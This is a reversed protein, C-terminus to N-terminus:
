RFLCFCTRLNDDFHELRPVRVINESHGACLDVFYEIGQAVGGNLRHDAPVFLVGGEDGPTDSAHGALGSDCNGGRTRANRVEHSTQSRSMRLAIWHHGQAARDRDRLAKFGHM